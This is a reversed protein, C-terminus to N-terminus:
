CPFFNEDCSKNIEGQKVANYLDFKETIESENIEGIQLGTMCSYYEKSELHYKQCIKCNAM